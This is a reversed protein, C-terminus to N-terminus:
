PSVVQWNESVVLYLKSETKSVAEAHITLGNHYYDGTWGIPVCVWGWVPEGQWSNINSTFYVVLEEKDLVALSESCKEKAIYEIRASIGYVTSQITLGPVVEPFGANGYPPKPTFTPLLPRPTEVPYQPMAPQFLYICAGFLLVVFGIVGFGMLTGTVKNRKNM